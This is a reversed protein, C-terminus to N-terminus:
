QEGTNMLWQWLKLGQEEIWLLIRDLQELIVELPHKEYGNFQATTEIYPSEYTVATEATQLANAPNSQTTNKTGQKTSPSTAAQAGKRTTELTVNKLQSRNTSTIEKAEQQQGDAQLAPQASITQALNQFPSELTFPESSHERDNLGLAENTPQAAQPAATNPSSNSATKLPAIPGAPQRLNKLLGAFRTTLRQWGKSSPASPLTPEGAHPDPTPLNTSSPPQPARNLLNNFWGQSPPTPTPGSNRPPLNPAQTKNGQLAGATGEGTGEGTAMADTTFKSSAMGWPDHSQWPQMRPTPRQGSTQGPAQGSVSSSPDQPPAHNTATNRLWREMAEELGFLKATFRIIQTAPDAQEDGQIYRQEMGALPSDLQALTQRTLQQGPEPDWYLFPPPAVQVALHSEQFVNTTQALPSTQMWGMLHTLWRVGVFQKARPQPLPLPRHRQANESNSAGTLALQQRYRQNRYNYDAVQQVITQQLTWQQESELPISRNSNDVLVLARDGLDSAVGRIDIGGLPLRQKPTTLDQPVPSPALAIGINRAKSETTDNSQERETQQIGLSTTELYLLLDQEVAGTKSELLRSTAAPQPIEPINNAVANTQADAVGVTIAGDDALKRALEIVSSLVEDAVPQTLRAQGPKPGGQSLRRGILRSTQFAAYLPYLLIQAGWVMGTRAQRFRHGAQDSLKQSQDVLYNLLRSKYRGSAAMPTSTTLSQLYPIAYFARLPESPCSESGVFLPSRPHNLDSIPCITLDTHKARYCRKAGRQLSELAGVAGRM